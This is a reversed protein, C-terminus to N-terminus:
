ASRLHTIVKWNNFPCGSNSAEAPTKDGLLRSPKIYNYHVWWGDLFEHLLEFKRLKNMMNSRRNLMQHFLSIMKADYEIEIAFRQNAIHKADNDFCASLRYSLKETIVKKPEKGVTGVAANYVMEFDRITYRESVCFALLFLTEADMIDLVHIDQGCVKLVTEDFIWTEGIKKPLYDKVCDVANKAYKKIWKYITYTSLIDGYEQKLNRSINAISVGEYFMNLASSIQDDACKMHFPAYDDKFKHKCDKCYYLQINNYKGFKIVNKSRCYKCTYQANILMRDYSKKLINFLQPNERKSFIFTPRESIDIYPIYITLLGEGLETEPDGIMMNFPLCGDRYKINPVHINAKALTKGIDSYLEEFSKGSFETTYLALYLSEPDLLIIHKLKMWISNINNITLMEGTSFVVNIYNHRNVFSNVVDPLNYLDLM